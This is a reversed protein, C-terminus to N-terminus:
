HTPLNSTADLIISLFLDFNWNAESVYIVHLRTVNAEKEGFLVIQSTLIEGVHIFGRDLRYMNQLYEYYTFM